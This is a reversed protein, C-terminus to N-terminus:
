DQVRVPSIIFMSCRIHQDFTVFILGNKHLPYPSAPASDIGKGKIIYNSERWFCAGCLIRICLIYHLKLVETIDHFHGTQSFVIQCLDAV